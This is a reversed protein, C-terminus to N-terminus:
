SANNFRFLLIHVRYIIYDKNCLNFFPFYEYISRSVLNKPFLFLSSKQLFINNIFISSHKKNEIVRCKKFKLHQHNNTKNKLMLLSLSSSLWESKRRNVKLIKLIFLNCLGSLIYYLLILQVIIIRINM